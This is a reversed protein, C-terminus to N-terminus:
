VLPELLLVALGIAPQQIAEWVCCLLRSCQLLHADLRVLHTCMCQKEHTYTCPTLVAVQMCSM